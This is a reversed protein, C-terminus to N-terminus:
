SVCPIDGSLNFFSISNAFSKSPLYNSNIIIKDILKLVKINNFHEPFPIEIILM